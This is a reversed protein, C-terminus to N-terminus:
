QSLGKKARLMKKAYKALANYNKATELFVSTACPWDNTSSTIANRLNYRETSFNECYFLVHEVTESDKQCKCRDESTLRFSRLKANFDGHGTLFQVKYHDLKIPKSLRQRVNPIMQYYWRGENSDNWREQWKDLIINLQIQLEEENIIKSRLKKKIIDWTIELDLPLFGAVVQM